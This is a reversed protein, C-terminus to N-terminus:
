PRSGATRRALRQLPQSWAHPDVWTFTHPGPVTAVEGEVAAQGLENVWRDTSIRDDTGKIILVPMSLEAVQEELKDALHVRLLHALGRVGARKWEPVHNQQLGPTPYRGDLRWRLLLRPLSRAVPDVTPSALCVAAVREPCLVGAWAAVQTGSSHGVVVVHDLAAAELWHAVAEGYGRVDLYHTPQGSGAYGPLDLLFIQTWEGVAACAPLLYDSVAMGQVVVVPPMGARPEGLVRSRMRGEPVDAYRMLMQEPMRPPRHM